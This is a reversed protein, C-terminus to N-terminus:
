KGWYPALVDIEYDTLGINIEVANSAKFILRNATEEERRGHWDPRSQYAMFMFVNLVYWLRSHSNWKAVLRAREARIEEGATHAASLVTEKSYTEM